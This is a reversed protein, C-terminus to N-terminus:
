EKETRGFIDRHSVYESESGAVRKAETLMAEVTPCIQSVEERFHELLEKGSYGQTLLDVMIQEAM